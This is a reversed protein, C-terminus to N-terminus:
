RWAYPDYKWFHVTHGNQGGTALINQSPHFAVGGHWGGSLDPLQVVQQWDKESSWIRLINDDSIGALFSNDPSFALDKIRGHAQEFSYVPDGTGVSWLTVARDFGGTALLREDPSLAIASVPGWQGMLINDVNYNHFQQLQVGTMVDWIILPTMGNMAICALRRSDGFFVHAASKGLLQTGEGTSVNWISVKPEELRGGIALFQGNSSWAVSRGPYTGQDNFQRVIRQERLSYLVIRRDFCVCAVSDNDPSWSIDSVGGAFGIHFWNMEWTERDVIALQNRALALKHGNPSWALNCVIDDGLDVTKLLTLGPAYINLVDQTTM